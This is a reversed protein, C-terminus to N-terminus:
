WRAPQDFTIFPFGLASKPPGADAFAQALHATVDAPTLARGLAALDAARGGYYLGLAAATRVDLRAAMFAGITGALQDGMGAVGADSSGVSNILVPAAAAAVISPQGKLLVTAGTRGAFRGATGIPDKAIDEVSQGNLRSMEKVHPTVLLPRERAIRELADVDDAFVNLGDADLLAPVGPLQEFTREIRQRTERTAGLGPGVVLAGIGGLDIDGDVDFFTAEPVTKQLIERNERASAVRVLGAGSRVAAGTAIVAAGAMGSSGAVILLRGSSGKNANPARQPFRRAAWESTILQAQPNPLPPFGIDVTVIRGCQARAPHFLLGVKPFGFCVTVTAHVVDDYVAGTDPNTGSPLDVAIIPRESANMARILQAARERPPGSAGTGLLGDLIVAASALTLQVDDDPDDAGILEVDRGWARLAQLAIIADGGNHGSGAVGAITGTPFLSDTILALARGANEMLAREPLDFEDQAVRDHDAAEAATVVPVAERGFVDRM